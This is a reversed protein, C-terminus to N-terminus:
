KSLKKAVKNNGKKWDYHRPRLPKDFSEKCNVNYLVIEERAKAVFDSCLALQEVIFQRIIREVTQPPVVFNRVDWRNETERWCQRRDNSITSTENEYCYPASDRETLHIGSM